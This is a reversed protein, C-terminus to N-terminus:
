QMKIAASSIVRGWRESEQKIHASMDARSGGTIEGTMEAFAHLVETQHLIENVDANIKDLIERPTNPPAVVSNWSESEFGPLTEAVTPVDPLGTLRLASAVAILKLQNSKALQLSSGLNDFMMDVNGSLLDSLAPASGRYPVQRLKVDAAIQFLETTLHSSTGNGQTAATLKDPNAKAAQIVERVSRATMQNSVVLANSVKVILAVPEFKAPDFRLNSFLYQNIVLPSQPTALLTYGDPEARAVAEAGLNGGAGSRNEVVVTKNWKRALAQGVIRGTLDATGGAPFPVVITVTRNPFQDAGSQAFAQSSYTALLGVTIAAVKVLVEANIGSTSKTSAM